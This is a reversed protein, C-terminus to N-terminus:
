RQILAITLKWGIKNMRRGFFENIGEISVDVNTILFMNKGVNRLGQNTVFWVVDFSCEEM